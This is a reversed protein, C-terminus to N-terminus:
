LHLHDYETQRRELLDEITAPYGLSIAAARAQEVSTVGLLITLCSGATSDVIVRAPTPFRPRICALHHQYLVLIGDPNRGLFAQLEEEAISGPPFGGVVCSEYGRQNAFQLRDAPAPSGNLQWSVKTVLKTWCPSALLFVPRSERKLAEMITARRSPLAPFELGGPLRALQVLTVLAYLAVPLSALVGWRPASDHSLAAVAKQLARVLTLTGLALLAPVLGLFPVFYRDEIYHGSRLSGLFFAGPVAVLMLSAVKVVQTRPLMRTLGGALMLLLWLALPLVPADVFTLFRGMLNWTDGLAPLIADMSLHRPQVPRYLLASFAPWNIAATVLAIVTFTGVERAAARWASRALRTAALWAYGTGVFALGFFHTNAFLLSVLATRKWAREPEGFVFVGTWLISLCFTLAYHRAFGSAGIDQGYGAHWAGIAIAAVAAEWRPRQNSIFGLAVTGITALIALLSAFMAPLRIGIENTGLLPAWLFRRLLHDLMPQFQTSAARRLSAVDPSLLAVDAHLSEDFGLPRGGLNPLRLRLALLVVILSGIALLYIATRRSNWWRPGPTTVAHPEPVSM